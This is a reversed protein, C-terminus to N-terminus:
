IYTDRAGLVDGRTICHPTQRAHAASQFIEYLLAEAMRLNGASREALAALAAPEIAFEFPLALAVADIRHRAFSEITPEDAPRLMVSLCEVGSTACLRALSVHTGLALRFQGAGADCIIGALRRRNVRQAEDICWGGALQAPRAVRAKGPPVYSYRWSSGFEQAVQRLVHLHTSKGWGREGVFEIVPTGTGLWERMRHPLAPDLLVAPVDDPDLVRFPNARLGVRLFPNGRPPPPNPM